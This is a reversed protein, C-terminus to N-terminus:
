DSCRTLPFENQNQNLWPRKAGRRVIIGSWYGRKSATADSSSSQALRSVAIKYVHVAMHKEVLRTLRSFLSQVLDPCFRLLFRSKSVSRATLKAVCENGVTDLLPNCWAPHHLCETM